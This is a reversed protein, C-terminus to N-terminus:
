AARVNIDVEEKCENIYLEEKMSCYQAILGFIGFLPSSFLVWRSTSASVRSVRTYNLGKGGGM